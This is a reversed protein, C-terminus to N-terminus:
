GGEVGGGMVTIATALWVQVNKSYAWSLQVVGRPIPPILMIIIIAVQVNYVQMM